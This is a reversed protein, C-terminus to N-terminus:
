KESGEKIVMPVDEMTKFLYIRDIPMDDFFIIEMNLMRKFTEIITENNRKGRILYDIMVADLLIISNAVLVGPRVGTSKTYGNIAKKIQKYTGM